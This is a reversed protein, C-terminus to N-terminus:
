EPCSFDLELFKPPSVKVFRNQSTEIRYRAAYVVEKGELVTMVNEGKCYHLNLITDCGSLFYYTNGDESTSSTEAYFIHGLRIEWIQFEGSRHVEDIQSVVSCNEKRDFTWELGDRRYMPSDHNANWGAVIESFTNLINSARDRTLRVNEAENQAEAVSVSGASGSIRKLDFLHEIRHIIPAYKVAAQPLPEEFVGESRTGGRTSHSFIQYCVLVAGLLLMVILFLSKSGKTMEYFRGTRCM